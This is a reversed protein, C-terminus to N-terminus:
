KISEKGILNFFQEKNLVKGFATEIIRLASYHLSPDDMTDVGDSIVIVEFDKSCASASTALICSNTNVGIIALRRCGLSRLTFELDTSHFADYRKKNNILLDGEKYIGPMLETQPSGILNHNKMNKRKNLTNDSQLSNWFPNSLIENMNRYVTIVHIIPIGRKRAENLIYISNEVVRKAREEPLPLTGIEPDLHGRHLDITVICTYNKEM